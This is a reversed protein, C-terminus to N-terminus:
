EEEADWAQTRAAATELASEAAERTAYPGMLQSHDSRHGVEVASTKMNFWFQESM